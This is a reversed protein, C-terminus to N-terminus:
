KDRWGALHYVGDKSGRNPFIRLSDFGSALAAAPTRVRYSALPELGYVPDIRTEAVAQGGRLYVLTFEGASDLDFRLSEPQVAGAFRLTIGSDGFALPQAPDPADADVLVMHPYRYRDSDILHDLQGTNMRWIASWRAPDFLGGRVILRLSDYFEALRTDEIQNHGSYLTSLYGEPVARHFHGVYFNAEREAPLRALLPDALAYQDIAYVNPGAYFGFLGVNNVPLVTYDVAGAARAALGSERGQSTPVPNLRSRGVLNVDSWYWAREDNIRKEDSVSYTAPIDIRYTPLPAVLGLALTVGILAAAEAPRAALPPLRWGILAVAALLPATLFRGSMFDGGIRVTYLLYLLAGAALAVERARRSGLGLTIGGLIATLTIPDHQLSNLLYFMGQAMLENQAVGTNLKAYATNPFPFGYYVLSFIEWLLFPAQGLVAWRLAKWRLPTQWWALLLAPAYILLTDMRNVGALSAVASLWFLRRPTAPRGLYLVLFVALLLHTLPNELGSTSYDVFANSLGLILLGLGAALTSRAIRTAYLAAAAMSAALSILISTYYIEHTLFYGFSLLFMWLPHTYAQVREGVNWTLGYGNVLNDVTRFTIYADDGVWARRTLIVLLLGLLALVPLAVGTRINKHSNTPYQAAM